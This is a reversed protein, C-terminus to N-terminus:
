WVVGVPIEMFRVRELGGCNLLVEAGEADRRHFLFLGEHGEVGEFRRTFFFLPHEVLM